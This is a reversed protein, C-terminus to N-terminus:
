GLSRAYQQPSAPAPAVTPAPPGPSPLLHKPGKACHRSGGFSRMVFQRGVDVRLDTATLHPVGGGTHDGNVVVHSLLPRRARVAHAVRLFRWTLPQATGGYAILTSSAM